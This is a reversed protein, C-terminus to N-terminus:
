VGEAVARMTLVRLHGEERWNNVEKLTDELIQLQTDTDYSFNSPHFWFHFIEGRRVAQRVGARIKRKMMGPTILKRLGNRGLLLLSDPINLLGSEHWSPVVTRSRPILYDFLHALRGFPGPIRHYWFKSEGRFCKIGIGKLSSHYGERNRPFIFSTLPLNHKAHIKAVEALDTAIAAPKINPSGYLIHAYSHSAIEHGVPSQRVLEIVGASDFWLPDTSDSAAPHHAFWDLRQDTYIEAPFNSHVRGEEVSCDDELLHGVIAWTAPIDYKQFLDLIKRAVDAEQRVLDKQASSLNVDAYGIAYEFDISIIFTGQNPRM